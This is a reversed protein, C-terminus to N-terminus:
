SLAHSHVGKQRLIDLRKNVTLGQIIAAEMNSYEWRGYRGLLIVGNDFYYRRIKEVAHQRQQNYAVYGHDLEKWFVETSSTMERNDIVGMRYLFNKIKIIQEDRDEIKKSFEITVASKDPPCNAPSFSAPFSIRHFDLEPGPSYAWHVNKGIGPRTFILHAVSLPSASLIATYDRINEPLNITKAVLTTLPATNILHNYGIKSGDSFYATKEGLNLATLETGTILNNVKRALAEALSGIGGCAPYYFCHNRGYEYGNLGLIGRIMMKVSQDPVYEKMWDTTLESLPLQWLKENYPKFFEETLIKGFINYCWKDMNKPYSSNIANKGVSKISSLMARSRFNFPLASLHNQLPYPVRYGRIWVEAARRLTKLPVGLDNEIWQRLSDNKFYLVHVGNDLLFNGANLSSSTGGVRCSSEVVTARDGLKCAASLGTLGAGIILTDSKHKIAKSLSIM